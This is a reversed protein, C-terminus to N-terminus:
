NLFKRLYYKKQEKDYYGFVYYDDVKFITKTKIDNNEELYFMREFVNLSNTISDKFTEIDDLSSIHTKNSLHNYNSKNLFTKFHVEKSNTYSNYGYMVPSYHFTVSMNMGGMPIGMGMGMGMSMGGGSQIEKHSGITIELFDNAEHVSLGINSSSIKNLIQATTELKIEKQGGFVKPRKYVLESNKFIIEEDRQVRYDKILKNTEIDYLTFYLESACGKIQYLINKHLFSNAKESSKNFCDIVGNNFLQVKFDFSDLDITILKTNSRLNNITIYIKNDFCYLKSKKSAIEISNPSDSEIKQVALGIGMNDQDSLASSLKTNPPKSFPYSSLDIEEIKSLQNGNFIRIKLISSSKKITLLYFKNNKNISSLFFEDKLKFPYIVESNQKKTFDITKSYFQKKKKNTFFLSYSTDGVSYGLLVSYKKETIKTIYNSQLEYNNNFNFGLIDNENVLFIALKNNIQDIIPLTEISGSYIDTFVNSNVKKEFLIEQSHLNIAFAILFFSFIYKNM